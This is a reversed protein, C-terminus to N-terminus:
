THGSLPPVPAAAPSSFLAPSPAAPGVLADFRRVEDHSGLAVQTRDQTSRVPVDLLSTGSGDSSCGGAKEMIYAIPAVEYLLRLKAPAAPSAPNVFVGQGKILIQNVDPVMGGSYRLTYKHKIWHEHLRAYGANDGTCRLNGPSYLIGERVEFFANTLLWRRRGKWGAAPGLTFEYAGVRNHMAMTLSTRPGYLAMIACVQSRGTVGVLTESEWVGIITGVTFNTDVISSGDLPDFAVSYRKGGMPLQEPTEESSAVAVYGQLKQFMIDNAILDIKLQNDGFSNSSNAM